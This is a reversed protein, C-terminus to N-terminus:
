HGGAQLSAQLKRALYSQRRRPLAIRERRQGGCARHLFGTGGRALVCFAPSLEESAHRLRGSRRSWCAFREDAHTRDRSLGHLTCWARSPATRSRVGQLLRKCEPRSLHLVRPRDIVPLRRMCRWARESDFKGNEWAMQLSVRLIGILTNVTKKRKRLEEESMREISRKPVLPGNGRRPPTELVDRVFLRLNEGNFAQAPVSAVRPILHFNTLNVLTLFHSRAAAIRKWEIYDALAHGITFVDGIPCAILEERSGIPRADSYNRRAPDEGFWQHARAFAQAFTLGHEGCNEAEEAFGLRHQRYTKNKLLVRALWFTRGKGYHQYGIARGYEIVQWYPPYRPNLTQRRDADALDFGFANEHGM